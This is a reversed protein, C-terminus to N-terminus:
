DNFEVAWGEEGFSVGGDIQCRRRWGRCCGGGISNRSYFLCFLWFRWNRGIGWTKAICPYGTIGAKM